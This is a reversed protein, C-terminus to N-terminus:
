LFNALLVAKNKKIQNNKTKKQPAVAINKRQLKKLVLMYQYNIENHILETANWKHTSILM